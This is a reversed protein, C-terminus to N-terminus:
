QNVHPFIEVLNTLRGLSLWQPTPFLHAWSARILQCV